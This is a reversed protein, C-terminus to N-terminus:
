YSTRMLSQLESTHEESRINRQEHRDAAEALSKGSTRGDSISEPRVVLELRFAGFVPGEARGHFREMTKLNRCAIKPDVILIANRRREGRAGPNQVIRDKGIENGQIRRRGQEFIDEGTGIAPELVNRPRVVVRRADDGEEM